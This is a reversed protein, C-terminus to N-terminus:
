GRECECGSIRILEGVAKSGSSHTYALHFFLFLFLFLSLRPASSQGLLVLMAAGVIIVYTKRYELYIKACLIQLWQM